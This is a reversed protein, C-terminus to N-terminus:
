RVSWNKSFKILRWETEMIKDVVEM